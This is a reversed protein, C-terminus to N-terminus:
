PKLNSLLPPMLPPNDPTMLNDLPQAGSAAMAQTLVQAQRAADAAYRDQVLNARPLNGTPQQVLRNIANYDLSSGDAFRIEDIRYATNGNNEFHHYIIVTNSQQKKSILYLNDNNRQLIIDKLLFNSFEIRDHQENPQLNVIDKNYIIDRGFDGSFHYIDNGKGGELKDDGEGGDLFDNGENGHLHDNDKGGFLKDDGAGGVLEDNGSGGTLVDDGDKAWITDNGLGGDIADNDSHGYLIDDDNTGQQTMKRITARDLRVGNALRIEDIRTGYIENGFFHNAITVQNNGNKTYIVM